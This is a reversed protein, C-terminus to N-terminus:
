GGTRVNLVMTVTSDEETTESVLEFGSAEARSRIREAVATQVRAAYAADLRNLLDRATVEDVDGGDAGTLHAEWIGDVTKAMDLAVGDVVAALADATLDIDVAGLDRLAEALLGEDKMRTRVSLRM